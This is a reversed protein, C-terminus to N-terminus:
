RDGSSSTSSSKSPMSAATPTFTIAQSQGAFRIETIASDAYIVADQASKESNEKVACSVKAVVKRGQNFTAENGDVVITYDGPALTTDGVQLRHQIHVTKRAPAAWATISIALAAALILGRSVVRTAMFGRKWRKLKDWAGKGSTHLRGQM